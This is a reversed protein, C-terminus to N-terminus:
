AQTIVISTNNQQTTIIINLSGISNRVGFGFAQVSMDATLLPSEATTPLCIPRVRSSRFMTTYYIIPSSYRVSALMNCRFTVPHALHLLALDHGQTINNLPAALDWGPHLTVRSVHCTTM